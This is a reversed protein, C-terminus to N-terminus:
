ALPSQCKVADCFKLVENYITLVIIYYDSNARTTPNAKSKDKHKGCEVENGFFM